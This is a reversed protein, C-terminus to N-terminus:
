LMRGSSDFTYTKGGITQTGTAMYGNAKLYYWDGNYKIWSSKTIRGSANLWVWGVSDRTWSNTLMKGNSGLYCWGVSDKVWMNTRMAGEDDFFYWSGSIKKWGTQVVGSANAYAWFSYYGKQGPGAYVPRNLKMWGYQMAGDEDFGYLKGNIRYVDNKYMWGGLGYEDTREFYYWKGGIWRWGQQLVGSADAYYWDCEDPDGYVEKIWSTRMRGNNRDLYYLKGNIEEVGAQHLQGGGYGDENAPTFYYWYEGIKKWGTAIIGDNAPDAYYWNVGSSGSEEFPEEIWGSLLKGDEAFYYQKGSVEEVGDAYMFGDDNAFYYWTGDIKRWGIQIVGEPDAYYWKNETHIEGSDAEWQIETEIWGTQLTGDNEDFYYRCFDEKSDDWIWEFGTAFTGEAFDYYYHTHSEDWGGLQEEGTEPEVTLSVPIAWAPNAEDFSANGTPDEYVNLTATYLRPRLYEISDDLALHYSFMGDARESPGDYTVDFLDADEGSLVFSLYGAPSDLVGQPKLAFRWEYPLNNLVYFETGSYTFETVEESWSFYHEGDAAYAQNANDGAPWALAAVALMVSLLVAAGKWHKDSHKKM